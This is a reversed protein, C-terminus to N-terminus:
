TSSSSRTAERRDVAQGRPVEARLRRGRDRRQRVHQVSRRARGVVHHRVPLLENVEDYLLYGKEKGITILQRVEDYKDEISLPMEEQPTEDTVRSSGDCRDRAETALMEAMRDPSGETADEALQDMERQVDAREREYRMRKLAQVCDEPPAPSVPQTGSLRRGPRGGSYKSAVSLCGTCGRAALGQLSRAVELMSRTALGELDAPELTGAAGM